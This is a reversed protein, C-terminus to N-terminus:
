SPKGRRERGARRAFGPDIRRSWALAAAATLVRRAHSELGRADAEHGMARRRAAEANLERTIRAIV